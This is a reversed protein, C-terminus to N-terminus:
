EEEDYLDVEKIFDDTYEDVLYEYVKERESRVDFKWSLTKNNFLYFNINYKYPDEYNGSGIDVPEFGFCLDLRVVPKNRFGITIPENDVSWM